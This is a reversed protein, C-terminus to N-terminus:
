FSTKDKGKLRLIQRAEEPTAIEKDLARVIRIMKEVLEANSKAYNDRDLRLNDEMGVRVNGGMLVALTGLYFEQPYGAGVASWIYDSKGFEQDSIAKLTQLVGLDAKAGGLVGLVFQVQLPKQLRGKQVLYGANYIPIAHKNEQLVPM